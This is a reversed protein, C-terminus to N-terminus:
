VNSRGHLFSLEMLWEFDVDDEEVVDEAAGEGEGLLLVLSGGLAGIAKGEFSDVVDLFLCLGSRLPRFPFFLKSTTFFLSSSLFLLPALSLLVVVLDM